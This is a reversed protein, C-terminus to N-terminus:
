GSSEGRERGSARGIKWPATVAGVRRAVVGTPHGTPLVNSHDALRSVGPKKVDANRHTRQSVGPMAPWASERFLAHGQRWPEFVLDSSCVDSSWDRSFR